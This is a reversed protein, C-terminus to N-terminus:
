SVTCKIRECLVSETGSFILIYGTFDWKRILEVDSFYREQMQRRAQEKKNQVAKESYEKKKIYKIEFLYNHEAKYPENGILLLDAYGGETEYESKIYYVHSLNLLLIMVLKIYKEDFKILDRKSLQKLMKKVEQIFLGPQGDYALAKISERIQVTDIEVLKEKEMEDLFYKWYLTRIVYNPVVFKIEAFDAAGITLMGLYYLLSLIDDQSLGKALSFEKTLWGAVAGDQLIKGTIKEKSSNRNLRYLHSIKSYDSAVNFDILDKPPRKLQILHKLYYLVMDSNFIKLTNEDAWEDFMYGDYNLKLKEYIKDQNITLQEPVIGILDRVEKETFGIMANFRPDNSIYSKINFGSTLSDLTVPTIGTIYIRDVVGSETGKKVEEYFKRVFGTKSVIDSFLDERFSLLENAFHDYEDILLYIKHTIRKAGTFLWLIMEEPTQSERIRKISDTVLFQRYDDIFKEVGQKVKSFFGSYTTEFTQTQVGSFNFSLVLYSNKLETPNKGIYLESFLQQFNDKENLDYYYKLMSLFLTKGFKRPRLCVPCQDDLNELVEIYETKDIYIFGNEIVKKFDAVGYPIKKSTKKM